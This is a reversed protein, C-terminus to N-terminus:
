KAGGGQHPKCSLLNFYDDLPIFRRAASKLAASATHTWSAVDVRIGHRALAQVAPVLDRDGSIITVDISSRDGTELLLDELLLVSLVVDNEKEKGAANRTPTVAEWGAYAAADWMTNITGAANSGVCVARANKINETGVAWKLLASFNGRWSFNCIGNTAAHAASPAIGCKAASVQSGGVLFNYADLYVAHSIAPRGDNNVPITRTPTNRTNSYTTYTM